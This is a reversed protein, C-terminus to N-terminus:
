PVLGHASRSADKRRAGRGLTETAGPLCQSYWQSQVTCTNGACCAGTATCDGWVAVCGGPPPPPSPPNALLCQSYWQSQAVCSYSGCCAGSATCDGWQNVCPPLPPPPAPPPPRPPAAFLPLTIHYIRPTCATINFTNQGSTGVIPVLADYNARRGVFFDLHNADLGWGVDDVRVCGNHVAPGSAIDPLSVGDLSPVYMTTGTPHDNTAISVFPHLPLSRASAADWVGVGWPNPATNTIVFFCSFGGNCDCSGLNVLTGNLLYASGELRAEVAFENSVQAIHEGSCTSLWTTPSDTPPQFAVFYYTWRHTLQNPIAQASATTAFLALLAKVASPM